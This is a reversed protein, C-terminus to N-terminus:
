VTNHCYLGMIMYESLVSSGTDYSKALLSLLLYSKFTYRLLDACQGKHGYLCNALLRNWLIFSYPIRAMQFSSGASTGSSLVLCPLLPVFDRMAHVSVSKSLKKM